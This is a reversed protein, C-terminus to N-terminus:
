PTQEACARACGRRWQRAPWAGTVQQGGRRLWQVGAVVAMLGADPVLLDEAGVAGRWADLVARQVRERRRERPMDAPPAWQSQGTRCNFFYSRATSPDVARVWPHSAYEAAAAARALRSPAAVSPRSSQLATPSPNDAAKSDEQAGLLDAYRQGLLYICAILM